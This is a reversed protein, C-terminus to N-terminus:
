RHNHSDGVPLPLNDIFSLFYIPLKIHLHIHGCFRHVHLKYEGSFIVAKHHISIKEM